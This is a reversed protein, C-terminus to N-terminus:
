SVEPLRKHPSRKYSLVGPIIVERLFSARHSHYHFSYYACNSYCNDNCEKIAGSLENKFDLFRARNMETFSYHSTKRLKSCWYVQGDPAIQVTRKKSVNCDWNTKGDLFSFYGQYYEAPDLIRYGQSKKKIILDVAKQLSRREGRRFALDNKLYAGTEPPPVILGISQPIGENNAREILEGLQELNERCLVMNSSVLMGHKNRAYSLLSFIEPNMELTKESYELAHIGDVSVSLIDLGNEALLDIKAKTLLKGNTTVQTLVNRDSSFRLASMLPKWILPEGGQFSIIGIGITVAHDLIQQFEEVSMVQSM